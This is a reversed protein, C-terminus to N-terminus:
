LSIFIDNSCALLLILTPYNVIIVLVELDELTNFNEVAGIAMREGLVITM